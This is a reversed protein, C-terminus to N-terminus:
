RAGERARIAAAVDARHAAARAARWSGFVADLAADGGGREAGPDHAGLGARDAALAAGGDRRPPPPAVAHAGGGGRGGGGRGVDPGCVDAATVGPAYADLRARLLALKAAIYPTLPPPAASRTAEDRAAAGAVAEPDLPAFRPGGATIAAAVLEPILGATTPLDPLPPPPPAAAAAGRAAEGGADVQYLAHVWYAAGDGGFLFAFDPNAQLPSVLPAPDLAGLTATGLWGGGGGGGCGM